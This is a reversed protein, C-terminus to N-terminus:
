TNVMWRSITDFPSGAGHASPFTKVKVSTRCWTYPFRSPKWAQPSPLSARRLVPSRGRWPCTGSWTPPRSPSPTPSITSAAMRRRTVRCFRSSTWTSGSCTTSPTTTNWATSVTSRIQGARIPSPGPPQGTSKRRWGAQWSTTNPQIPDGCAVRRCPAPACSGSSAKGLVPLQVRTRSTWWTSRWDM